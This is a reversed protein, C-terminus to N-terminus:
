SGIETLFHKYCTNSRLSSWMIHHFVDSCVSKTTLVHESVGHSCNVEGESWQLLHYGNVDCVVWWVRSNGAVRRQTQAKDRNKGRARCGGTPIDLAWCVGNVSGLDLLNTESQETSASCVGFGRESFSFVGAFVRVKFDSAPRKSYLLRVYAVSRKSM